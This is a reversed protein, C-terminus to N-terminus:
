VRPAAQLSDRYLRSKEVYGAASRMLGDVEEDTLQRVVRGPSGLVLSRDPIVRGEPILANAGILCNRGIVVRNLIVAHIGVLSGDGVTCGHLMAHHGITVDAGITLPVGDDIHLVAGDQVNSREGISIHDNDARIVAGFWVSTDAKLEADGIISASPAIWASSHVVPTKGDLAYLSM